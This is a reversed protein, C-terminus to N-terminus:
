KKDAVKESATKDGSLDLLEEETGGLQLAGAKDAEDLTAKLEKASPKVFRHQRYFNVVADQLQQDSPEPRARRDAEARMTRILDVSQQHAWAAIEAVDAERWGNNRAKADAHAPHDPEINTLTGSPNIVWTM